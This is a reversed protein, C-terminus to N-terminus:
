DVQGWWHIGTPGHGEQFDFACVRLKDETVAWIDGVSYTSRPTTGFDPIEAVYPRCLRKKIWDEHPKINGLKAAEIAARYEALMEAWSVSYLAWVPWRFSQEGIKAPLDNESEYDGNRNLSHKDRDNDRYEASCFPCAFSVEDSGDRFLFVKTGNYKDDKEGTWIPDVLSNCKVCRFRWCDQQGRYYFDTVEKGVDAATTAHVAKRFWK